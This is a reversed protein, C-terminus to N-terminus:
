FPLDDPEAGSEGGESKPAGGKGGSVFFVEEAVISLKSRKQKTTADEWSETVLRGSVIIQEGKKKHKILVEATKEWATVDVFTTDKDTRGNVALRLNAVQKGTSTSRGEPEAVLTGQINVKNLNAM